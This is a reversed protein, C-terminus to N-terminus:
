RSCAALFERCLRAVEPDGLYDLHGGAVLRDGPRRRAIRDARGRVHLTRCAPARTGVAGYAFVDLRALLPAPLALRGLLELGISGALVLTRDAADLRAVVAARHRRRFAPRRCAFWLRAHRASALWLPVPRAPGLAPDYPFNLRVRGAVPLADLFADQVPTLACTRPDSQGTLFLV